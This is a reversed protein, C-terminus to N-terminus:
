KSKTPTVDIEDPFDEFQKRMSHLVLKPVSHVDGFSANSRMVIFRAHVKEALKEYRRVSKATVFVNSVVASVGSRLAKEINRYCWDAAEKYKKGDFCYKGNKMFFEDNEFHAFGNESAIKKAITSKGSGPCGRVLYLTLIDPDVIKAIDANM